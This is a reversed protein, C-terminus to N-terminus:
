IFLRALYVSSSLLCFLFVVLRVKDDRLRAVWKAGLYNGFVSGVALVMMLDWIVLQYYILIFGSSIVSLLQFCRSTGLATKDNLVGPNNRTLRLGLFYLAGSMPGAFGDYIMLIPMVIVRSFGPLRFRFRFIGGTPLSLLSAMVVIVGILVSWLRVNLQLALFTGAFPLVLGIILWRFIIKGDIINRSYYQYVSQSLGFFLAMKNTGLAMFPPIGVMLYVPLTFLGGTGAIATAFGGFISALFCVLILVLSLDEM